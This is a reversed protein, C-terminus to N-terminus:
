VRTFDTRAFGLSAYRQPSKIELKVQPGIDDWDITLFGFNKQGIAPILAGPHPLVLPSCHTLGSSMVEFLPLGGPLITKTIEAFHRDGSLVITPIGVEAILGYFRSKDKAFSHWGELEGGAFPSTMNIGSGFIILDADSSRVTDELWQWQIDGLLKPQILSKDMNYRNDILITQVRKGIPGFAYSQYVGCHEWVPANSPVDLFSLMSRKSIDKHSFNKDSNNGAYDHDDWTGIIPVESRFQKYFSNGKLNQYLDDRLGDTALDSYINDGLWIWLDPQERAILKWYSQDQWSYNCSGFAIRTLAKSSLDGLAQQNSREVLGFGFVKHTCILAGTGIAGRQIFSRRDM